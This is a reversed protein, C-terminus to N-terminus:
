GNKKNQLRLKLLGTNYYKNYAPPAIYTKELFQFILKQTEDKEHKPINQYGQLCM